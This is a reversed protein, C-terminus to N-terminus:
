SPHSILKISQYNHCQSLKRKKLLPNVLSQTREKRWNETNWIKSCRDTGESDRDRWMQAAESIHKKVGLSTWGKLSRIAQEVEGRLVQLDDPDKPDNKTIVEM